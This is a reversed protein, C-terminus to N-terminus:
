RVTGVQHLKDRVTGVKSERRIGTQCVCICLIRTSAQVSINAHSDLVHRRAVYNQCGLWWFRKLPSVPTVPFTTAELDVRITQFKM